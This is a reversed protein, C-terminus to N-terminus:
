TASAPSTRRQAFYALSGALIGLVDAAWDGVSPTRNVAAQTIEDLAGYAAVGVIMLGITSGRITVRGFAFARWLLVTLGLYIAVHVVKDAHPFLEVEPM